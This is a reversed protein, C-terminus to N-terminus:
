CLSQTHHKYSVLTLSSTVKIRIDTQIAFSPPRLKDGFCSLAVVFSVPWSKLQCGRRTLSRSSGYM